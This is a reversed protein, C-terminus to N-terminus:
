DKSRCRSARAVSVASLERGLDFPSRLRCRLPGQFAMMMGDRFIEKHHLVAITTRGASRAGGGRASGTSNRSASFSARRSADCRCKRREADPRGQKNRGAVINGPVDVVRGGADFHRVQGFDAESDDFFLWLSQQNCISNRQRSRIWSWRSHLKSWRKMSVACRPLAYRM